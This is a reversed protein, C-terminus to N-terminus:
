FMMMQAGAADAMMDSFFRSAMGFERVSRHSGTGKPDHEAIYECLTVGLWDSVSAEACAAKEYVAAVLWMPLEASLVATKENMSNMMATM